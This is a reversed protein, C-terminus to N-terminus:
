NRRHSAGSQLWNWRGAGAWKICIYMYQWYIRWEAVEMTRKAAEALMAGSIASGVNSRSKCASKGVLYPRGIWKPNALPQTYYIKAYLYLHAHTLKATENNNYANKISQWCKGSWQPLYVQFPAAASFIRLFANKASCSKRNASCPAYKRVYTYAYIPTNTYTYTQIYMCLRYHCDCHCCSCFNHAIYIYKWVCCPLTAVNPPNSTVVVTWITSASVFPCNAQTSAALAKGCKAKSHTELAQFIPNARM